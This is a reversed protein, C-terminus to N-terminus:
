YTISIASGLYIISGFHEYINLHTLRICLVNNVLASSRFKTGFTCIPLEVSIAVILHYANKELVSYTLFIKKMTKYFIM